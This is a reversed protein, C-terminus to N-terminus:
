GLWWASWERFFGVKSFIAWLLVRPCCGRHCVEVVVGVVVGFAVGVVASGVVVGSSVGSSM